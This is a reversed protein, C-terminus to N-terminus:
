QWLRWPEGTEDLVRELRERGEDHRGAFIASRAKALTHVHELLVPSADMEERMEEVRSELDDIEEDKAEVSAKLGSVEDELEIIRSKLSEIEETPAVLTDM